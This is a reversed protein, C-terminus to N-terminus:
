LWVERKKEVPIVENRREVQAKRSSIWTQMHYQRKNKGVRKRHAPEDRTENGRTLPNAHTLSSTRSNQHEGPGFGSMGRGNLSENDVRLGGGGNGNRRPDHHTGRM